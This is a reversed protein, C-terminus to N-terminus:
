RITVNGPTKPGAIHNSSSHPFNTAEVRGALGSKGVLPDRLAEIFLRWTPTPSERSLSTMIVDYLQDKQSHHGNCIADVEYPQLNLALGLSHADNMAELLKGM